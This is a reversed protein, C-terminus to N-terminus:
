RRRPKSPLCLRELLYASLILSAGTFGAIVYGGINGTPVSATNGAVTALAGFGFVLKPTVMRPYAVVTASAVLMLGDVMIPYLHAASQSQGYRIAVEALHFYSAYLATLWVGATGAIGVRRVVLRARAEATERAKRQAASETHRRVPAKRVPKVAESKVAYLAM